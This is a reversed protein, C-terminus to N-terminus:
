LSPAVKAIALVSIRILCGTSSSLSLVRGDKKTTCAQDDKAAAGEGRAGQGGRGGGKRRRAQEEVAASGVGEGGDRKSRPAGM